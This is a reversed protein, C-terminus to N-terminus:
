IVHIPFHIYKFLIFIKGKLIRLDKIKFFLYFCEMGQCAGNHNKTILKDMSCSASKMDDMNGYTKGDNGCITTNTTTTTPTTMNPCKFLCDKTTEDCLSYPPCGLANCKVPPALIFFFYSSLIGKLTSNNTM